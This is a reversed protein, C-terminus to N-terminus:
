KVSSSYAAIGSVAGPDRSTKARNRSNSRTSQRMHRIDTLDNRSRPPRQRRQGRIALACFVVVLLMAVAATRDFTITPM